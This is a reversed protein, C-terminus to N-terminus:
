RLVEPRPAGKEPRRGPNDCCTETLPQSCTFCLHDRSSPFRPAASKDGEVGAARWWPGTQELVRAPTHTGSECAVWALAVCVDRRPKHGLHKKILTRVSSTPWDPRLEHMAAAIREIEHDNM